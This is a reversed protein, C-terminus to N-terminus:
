NANRDLFKEIMPVVFDSEKTDPKLTTIEGM